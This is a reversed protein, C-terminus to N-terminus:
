WLRDRLSFWSMALALIPWRFMRGGPFPPTKLRSVVDFRDTDGLIAQAVV